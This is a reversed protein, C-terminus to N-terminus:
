SARGSTSAPARPSCARISAGEARIPLKGATYEAVHKNDIYFSNFTQPTKSPRTTSRSRTTCRVTRSGATSSCTSSTRATARASRRSRSRRARSPRTASSRGTSPPRSRSRSAARAHRRRVHGDGPVQGQVQVEHRQRRLADGRVPRHHRRLGLDADDRLGRRPRDAPLRPVAGVNRRALKLGPAHMDIEYTLGPYFYGIQPGGVMLPNGTDLARQHDDAHEVGAGAAARAERGAGARRGGADARLQRPRHRRQGERKKPIQHRVPVQRRGDDPRGQEQVPAPRQLRKM